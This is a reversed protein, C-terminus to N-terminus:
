RVTWVFAVFPGLTAPPAHRRLDFAGDSPTRLVGRTQTDASAAM